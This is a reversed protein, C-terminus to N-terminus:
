VEDGLGSLDIEEELAISEGSRLGNRMLDRIAAALPVDAPLNLLRELIQPDTKNSLTIPTYVVYTGNKRQTIPM